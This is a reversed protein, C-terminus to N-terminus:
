AVGRFQLIWTVMSPDLIKTLKAPVSQYDELLELWSVLKLFVASVLLGWGESCMTIMQPFKKLVGLGLDVWVLEIPNEQPPHKGLERSSELTYGPMLVVSKVEAPGALHTLHSKISEPLSGM